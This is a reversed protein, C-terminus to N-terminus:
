TLPLEQELRLDGTAQFVRPDHRDAARASLGNLADRDTLLVHRADGAIDRANSEIRLCHGDRRRGGQLSVTAFNPSAFVGNEIPPVAHALQSNV